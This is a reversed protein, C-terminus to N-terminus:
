GDPGVGIDYYARSMSRRYDAFFEEDSDHNWVENGITISRRGVVSAGQRDPLLKNFCAYAEIIAEAPFRTYTYHKLKEM